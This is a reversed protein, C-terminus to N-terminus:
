ALRFSATAEFEEGHVEQGRYRITLLHQGTEASLFDPGSAAARGSVEGCPVFGYTDALEGASYGCTYYESSTFVDSGGPRDLVLLVSSPPINTKGQLSLAVGQSPYPHVAIGNSDKNM